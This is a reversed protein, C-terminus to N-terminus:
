LGATELWAKTLERGEAHPVLPRYGFDRTAAAHTSFFDITIALVTRRTLHMKWGLGIRSALWHMAEVLGLVFRM